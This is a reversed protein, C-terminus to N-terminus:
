LLLSVLWTFLILVPICGITLIRMIRYQEVDGDRRISPLVIEIEREQELGPFHWSHGMVNSVSEGNLCGGAKRPHSAM